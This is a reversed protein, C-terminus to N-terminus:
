PNTVFNALEKILMLHIEDPEMSKGTDLKSRVGFMDLEKLTLTHTPPPSTHVSPFPTESTYVVSFYNSFVQAKDYDDEM